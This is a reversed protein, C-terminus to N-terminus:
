SMNAIRQNRSSNIARKATNVAGRATPASARKTQGTYPDIFNTQWKGGKQKPAGIGSYPDNSAVGDPANRDYQNKSIVSVNGSPTTNKSVNVATGTGYTTTNFTTTNETDKQIPVISSRYKRFIPGMDVASDFTILFTAWEYKDLNPDTSTYSPDWLNTSSGDEDTIQDISVLGKSSNSSETPRGLSIIENLIITIFLFSSNVTYATAM